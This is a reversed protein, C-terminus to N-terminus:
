AKRKEVILASIKVMIERRKELDPENKAQERLLNLKMELGETKLVKVCDSFYRAKDFTSAFENAGVSAIADLEGTEGLRQAPFHKDVSV